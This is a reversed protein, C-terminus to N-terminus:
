CNWKSYPVGEPHEPTVFAIVPAALRVFRSLEKGTPCRDIDAEDGAAEMSCGEVRDLALGCRNGGVYQLRSTSSPWTFGYFPCKSRQERTHSIPDMLFGQLPIKAWPRYAWHTITVKRLM